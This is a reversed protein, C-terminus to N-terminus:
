TCPPDEIVCILRAELCHIIKNILMKRKRSHNLLGDLLFYAHCIQFFVIFAANLILHAPLRVSPSTLSYLEELKSLSILPLSGKYLFLIAAPVLQYDGGSAVPVPTTDYMLAWLTM